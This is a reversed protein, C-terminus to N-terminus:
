QRYVPDGTLQHLVFISEITEPRLINFSGGPGPSMDHGDRFVYWEAAVGTASREYRCCGGKSARAESM